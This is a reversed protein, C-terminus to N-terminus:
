DLGEFGRRGVRFADRVEQRAQLRRVPEAARARQRLCVKHQRLEAPDLALDTVKPHAAVHEARAHVYALMPEFRRRVEPPLACLPCGASM